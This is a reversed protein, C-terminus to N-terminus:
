ANIIKIISLPYQLGVFIIGSKIMILRQFPWSKKKFVSLSPDTNIKNIMERRCNVMLSVTDVEEKSVTNFQYSFHLRFGAIATCNNLTTASDIVM